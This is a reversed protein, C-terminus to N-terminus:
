RKSAARVRKAQKRDTRSASELALQGKAEVALGGVGLKRLGAFCSRCFPLTTKTRRPNARESAFLLLAAIPKRAERCRACAILKRGSQKAEVFSRVLLPRTIALTELSREPRFTEGRAYAVYEASSLTKRNRGNRTNRGNSKVEVNRQTVRLWEELQDADFRLVRGIRFHPLKGQKTLRYVTIPHVKLLAAVEAITLVKQIAMLTV